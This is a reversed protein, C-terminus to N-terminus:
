NSAFLGAAVLEITWGTFQLPHSRTDPLMEPAAGPGPSLRWFGGTARAPM